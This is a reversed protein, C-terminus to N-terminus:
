MRKRKAHRRKRAWKASCRSSCCTEAGGCAAVMEKREASIPGKCNACCVRVENAPAAQVIWQSQDAHGVHFKGCDYCHYAILLDGLRMSLRRASREAQKITRFVKKCDCRRLAPNEWEGYIPM